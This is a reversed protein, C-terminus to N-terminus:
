MRSCSNRRDQYFRETIRDIPLCPAKIIVGFENFNRHVEPSDIYIHHIM